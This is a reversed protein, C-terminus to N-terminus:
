PKKWMLLRIYCVPQDNEPPIKMKIRVTETDNNYDDTVISEVIYADADSWTQLDTSTEVRYETDTSAKRRQYRLEADFAAESDGPAVGLKSPSEFVKAKGGAAYEVWNKLGDGDPDAGEGSIEPDALEPANFIKQRWKEWSMGVGWVEGGGILLAPDGLLNYIQALYPTLGLARYQVLGQRIAEGITPAGDLFIAGYIAECMAEAPENFSLGTPSWVAVAGSTKSLVLLESLCDYGPIPFQGMTCTMSTMIPLRSANALRPVDSTLLLGETAMRDIGSHGFYNLFAAGTNIGNRLQTRFAELANPDLYVKELSYDSPILAALNDSSSYFDGADDPNDASLLVRKKWDEGTDNEYMVIKSVMSTFETASLVPLRGVAMEPVYDGDFDAFWGDSAFLGDPTMVLMVPVLNDTYATKKRYDYTGEGGLLVFKPPKAWQQYAYDLFDRIAPPNAIGNNFEDYIDELLVVKTSLGQGARHEALQTAASVLEPTTIVLFDAENIAAHLDSEIDIAMTKPVQASAPVFAAYPVAPASPVFSAQYQGPAEEEKTVGEIRVPRFPDNLDYIRIDESSFGHVTVVDNGDGRLALQNDVADYQRAYQLDFSDVYVQSSAGNSIGSVIVINSAPNLLGQDVVCDVNTGLIGGWVAEGVLNNTGNLYIKIYNEASMGPTTLISQLRVRLLASNTVSALGPTKLVFNTNSIKKTGSVRVYDWFWYDSEPTEATMIQIKRDVEYHLSEVFSQPESVAAPGTGPLNSVIQGPAWYLRYVNIDTYLSDIDQGYFCFGQGDPLPDVACENTRNMLQVGGSSIEAAVAVESAGVAAALAAASVTYIGNNTVSIKVVPWASADMLTKGATRKSMTNNNFAALEQERAALRQLTFESVRATSSFATEGASPPNAAAMKGIKPVSVDFPGYANQGGRAEVEILKYKYTEGPAVGADIYRYVGGQPEQVSFLLEPCVQVFAPEETRARYLYFGVTGVESATEWELVVQGNEVFARFDSLIVLTARPKIEASSLDNSTVPDYLNAGSISVTNTITQGATDERVTVNITLTTASGAELTGITWIGNGSNYAGNSHSNYQVQEPLEDKVKLNAVSHPGKNTGTIWYQIIEVEGPRTDSVTKSVSVEAYEVCDTVGASIPANIASSATALNTLATITSPTNVVVRNTVTLAEGPLISYGSALMPPPGAVNTVVFLGSYQIQINDVVLGRAAGMGLSNTFRIMMNSAIFSTVDFRGTQTTLDNGNSFNTLTTWSTGGNASVALSNSASVLINTRRYQFTLLASTAESLNAMRRLSSGNNYLYVQYNTGWVNVVQINGAAAGAGGSDAELWDGAWRVSGDQNTFAQGNFVDRVTLPTSTPSRGIVIANSFTTGYPLPDSVAVDTQAVNGTNIVTITYTVIDGATLCGAASSTKTIRLGSIPIILGADWAWDNTGTPLFFLPTRGTSQVADSDNTDSGGADAATFSYNSPAVFEVFYSGSLLGTFLYHGTSDTTTASLLNSSGNYLRVTINTAGSEGADQIGNTNADYWVRDGISSPPIYLGADWMNSVGSTVTFIMTRGSTVDADSDISDNGGQDRPSFWYNTPAVFEVFYNGSLWNTFMYYGNTTSMTTYLLNSNSDYLRVTVNTLGTEGVDQIGNTNVDYWVRDGIAVLIAFNTSSAQRPPQQSSTVSAVNIFQTSTLPPALTAAIRFSISTGSVLTYNALLNTPSAPWNTIVMLVWNTTFSPVPNTAIQYGSYALAVYDFNIEDNNAFNPGGRLRLSLNTGIVSTINTSVTTYGPDTVAAGGLSWVLNSQGGFGNTSVHIYFSDDTDWAVRRYAFSLTVNTYVRGAINSLVMSRTAYDNDAGNDIWALSNTTGSDTQILVNGSAPNNGESDTWNNLWNVSGNNNAYSVTNFDDRVSGSVVNTTVNTSLYNTAVQPAYFVRETSGTVFNVSSPLVDALNIETQAISGTNAITIVYRNTQGQGWPATMDSTKTITLGITGSQNNTAYGYLWNTEQNSKLRAVNVMQISAPPNDVSARLTVVMSTRPPLVYGNLLTPLDYLRNTANNSRFTIKVDDFWIYNAGAFTGAALFRVATNTSCYASVNVNTSIYAGDTAPGTFTALAASWTAGGNSSAYVSVSDGAADLADRRYELSLIANTYGGLDAMRWAGINAAGIRFAYVHGPTSGEDNAVVASGAEPGDAEGAEQWANLWRTDGNNNTYTQSNFLDRVTNTHAFPRWLRASDPVYSEGLPLLDDLIIGAQVLDGTNAISLTYTVVSGPEVWNSNCVKSLTIGQTARVQNTVPNSDKWPGYENARVRAFNVLQTSTPPSHVAVDFRVVISTGPPLSLENFLSPPDGGTFTVNSGTMTITVNDYWVKDNTAMTPSRSSLFKIATNSSMYTSIELNTSLYNTENAAGQLRFLFNSSSWENTSIFLDVYDNADDLGDRRYQFSLFANNFGALNASRWAANNSGAIMLAYANLPYCGSDPAVQVDGDIPGNGEGEEQWDNKWKLTGNNNTYTRRDFRDIVTNTLGGPMTVRTSGAVAAVGDPLTDELAMGTYTYQGTNVVTIIYAFDDGPNLTNTATSSKFVSLGGVLVNTFGTTSWNGNSGSVTANNHIYGDFNSPMSSAITTVYRVQSTGGVAITGIDYGGEDFPFRTLRPPLDDFVPVGNISSSDPSYYTLNTPPNDEFMVHTATAYGVNVVDVYFALSDGMDAYGNSNIDIFLTAYKKALVTPFPLIESGTDLHPLYPSAYYPDEGWASAFMTGDLTYYTLSTQNSDSNDQLTVLQYAQINTTFNYARGVADTYPGTHPNGDLDVYLTTNSVATVWVPNGNYRPVDPSVGAGPGWGVIGLTTLADAPILTFGWDYDQLEGVLGPATGDFAESAAFKLGNTSYFRAGSNGPMVFVESVSGAAVTITGTSVLTQYHVTLPSTNPNFLYVLAKYYLHDVETQNTRSGVPTFYDSSWNAVPWQTFWRTEYTSGIDGTVIHCQFPKNGVVRAGPSIGTLVRSEGPGLRFSMEYAGNNDADMQILTNDYDGMLYFASYEFIENTYPPSGTGWGIPAQYELGHLSIDLVVGAEAIVEGPVIPYMARSMAVPKTVAVKDKGDYEIIVENRTVDITEELNVVTGANIVDNSFAPPIGNAANGDGWIQTTSQTPSTIDDEYGDEWHDYYIVTGDNGAAMSVVTRMDVGINGRFADIIKLSEQMDNEPFAVFYTQLINAGQVCCSVALFILVGAASRKFPDFFNVNSVDRWGEKIGRHFKM